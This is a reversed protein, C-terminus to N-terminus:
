IADQSAERNEQVYEVVIRAPLEVSGALTVGLGDLIVMKAVEVVDPPLARFDAQSILVSLDQSVSSHAGEPLSEPSYMGCQAKSKLWRAMRRLRM